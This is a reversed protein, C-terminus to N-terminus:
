YVVLYVRKLKGPPGQILSLPQNLGQMLSEMQSHDLQIKKKTDLINGVNRDSSKSLKRILDEPVLADQPKRDEGEQGLLQEALPLDVREQLCKLVPEYAFIPTDVLIFRLGNSAKLAILAKKLAETGLVHLFVTPPDKLLADENRDLTAFAVINDGQVICGFSQHKLFHRNDDLFKKRESKARSLLPELGHECCIALVAPRRRKEDGCFLGAVSLPWLVSALRRNKRKGTAVQLDERLEALMDERLLRFQNDLHMAVRHNEDAEAITEARRYFPKESSLFEDATPYIAVQRFDEFDNDHRGGAVADQDFAVSVCRTNLIHKIKQGYTRVQHSESELFLGNTTIQQADVLIDSVHLSPLMVLEAVLWAFALLANQGLLMSRSSSVLAKWLTPPEVIIMLLKQLIQGNCLEKVIPESLYLLFGPLKQNLFNLSVDFRLGSQLANLAHSSGSLKEICRQHDPESCLAELFLNTDAANKIGRKGSLIGGFLQALRQSRAADAGGSAM